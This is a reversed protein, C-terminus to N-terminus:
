PLVRVTLEVYFEIPSSDAGWTFSIQYPPKYKAPSDLMGRLFSWDVMKVGELPMLYITMRAPGALKFDYRISYGSNVVTKNLLELKTDGPVEVPQKRPLWRETDCNLGCQMQCDCTDAIGVLGTLDLKDLLPQEKRHDRLGFYYGSNEQSISGNYEYLKRNVQQVFLSRQFAM